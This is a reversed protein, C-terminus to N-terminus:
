GTPRESSAGHGTRASPGFRATRLWERRGRAVLAALVGAVLPLLAPAVGSTVVTVVVAGAMIVVLGAAALPTLEQRVRLWGPLVLGAAGLVECAGVFRLFAGPLPIARTLAEVPMVLKTVGAFLFLLALLVQATWLLAGSKRAMAEFSFRM